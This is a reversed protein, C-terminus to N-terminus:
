KKKKTRLQDIVAKLVEIEQKMQNTLHALKAIPRSYFTLNRADYVENTNLWVMEYGCWKWVRRVYLEDALNKYTSVSDGMKFKTFM